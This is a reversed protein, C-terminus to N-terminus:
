RSEERQQTERVTTRFLDSVEKSVKACDAQCAELADYDRHELDVVLPEVAMLAPDIHESYEHAIGTNVDVVSPDKPNLSPIRGLYIYM